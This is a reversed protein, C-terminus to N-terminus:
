NVLEDRVEECVMTSVSEGVCASVWAHTEAVEKLGKWM